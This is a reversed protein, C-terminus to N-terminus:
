AKYIIPVELEPDQFEWLNLVCGFSPKFPSGLKLQYKKELHAFRRTKYGRSQGKTTIAWSSRISCVDVPASEAVFAQAEFEVSNTHGIM